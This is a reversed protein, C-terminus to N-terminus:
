NYSIEINWNHINIIYKVLLMPLATEFSPHIVLAVSTIGKPPNAVADIYDPLSFPLSATLSTIELIDLLPADTIPRSIDSFETTAITEM